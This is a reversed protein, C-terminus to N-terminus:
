KMLFQLGIYGMATTDGVIDTDLAIKCVDLFFNSSHDYDLV